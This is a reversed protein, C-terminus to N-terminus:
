DAPAESKRRAEDKGITAAHNRAQLAPTAGNVSSARHVTTDTVLTDATRVAVVATAVAAVVVTAPGGVVLWVMGVRWWPTPAGDKGSQPEAM